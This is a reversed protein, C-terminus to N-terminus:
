KRRFFAVILFKYAYLAREGIGMILAARLHGGDALM